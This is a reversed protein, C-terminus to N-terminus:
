SRAFALLDQNLRDKHSFYLAHPAGHYVLLKADKVLAATAKGTVDFNVVADGDGHVVL